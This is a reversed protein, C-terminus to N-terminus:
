PELISIEIEDAISLRLSELARRDRGIQERHETHGCGHAPRERMVLILRPAMANHQQAIRQPTAPEAAVAADDAFRNAEISPRIRDDADHRGTKLRRRAGLLCPHRQHQLRALERTLYCLVITDDSSERRM